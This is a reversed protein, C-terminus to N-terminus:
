FDTILSIRSLNFKTLHPSGQIMFGTLLFEIKTKNKMELKLKLKMKFKVKMELKLKLKMKFKM